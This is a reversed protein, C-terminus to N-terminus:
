ARRLADQTVTRSAKWAPYLGASLAAVVTTGLIRMASEPTLLPHIVPSMYFFRFASAFRSLDIGPEALLWVALAGLLYGLLSGLLILMLGELLVMVFLQGGRTGLASMIGLERSREHLAMLMTNLVEVLVLSAVILILVLGYADSFRLWQSVMPDLDRWDLVEFTEENLGQVLRDRVAASADHDVVRIVVDTISSELELWRQAEDLNVLALTRDIQPAGAHLIGSLYFVEAAMEGGPRQATLVVRDGVAAGLNRAVTSGLLLDRPVGPRLWQGDQVAQHMRTVWTEQEPDVGMIQVGASVGGVTALGSGRIRRTWGSIADDRGILEEVASTDDMRDKLSQSAEFGVAHVQVHGTVALIFNDKMERLWGDNLASLLTLAAVGLMMSILTILTRKPNRWLNRLALRFFSVTDLGRRESM